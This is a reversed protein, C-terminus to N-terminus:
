PSSAYYSNTSPLFTATMHWTTDFSEEGARGHQTCPDTTADCAGGGTAGLYKFVPTFQSGKSLPCMAAIWYVHNPVPTYASTLPLRYWQRRPLQTTMEVFASAALTTPNADADTDYIAADLRTTGDGAYDDIYVWLSQVAEVSGGTKFSAAEPTGCPHPDDGQEITDDGFVVAGPGPPADPAPRAPDGLCGSVFVLLAIARVVIREM